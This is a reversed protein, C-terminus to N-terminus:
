MKTTTPCSYLIQGPSTKGCSGDCGQLLLVIIGFGEMRRQVIISVLAPEVHDSDQQSKLTVSCLCLLGYSSLQLATSLKWLSLM